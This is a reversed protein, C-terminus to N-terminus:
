ENLIVRSLLVALRSWFPSSRWMFTFLLLLSSEGVALGAVIPAALISAAVGGTVALNRRHKSSLIYRAHIQLCFVPSYGVIVTLCQKCAAPEEGEDTEPHQHEQKETVTAKGSSISDGQFATLQFYWRGLLTLVFRGQEIKKIIKRM